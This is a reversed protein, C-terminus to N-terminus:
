KPKVPYCTLFEPNLQQKRIIWVSILDCSKAFYTIKMPVVYRIGYDDLASMECDCHPVKSLIEGRLWDADKRYIGLLAKFLRAKHKGIPHDENLVYKELRSIELTAFQFNPLSEM